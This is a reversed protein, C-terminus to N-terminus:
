CLNIVDGLLEEIEADERTTIGWERNRRFYGAELPAARWAQAIAEPAPYRGESITPKTAAFLLVDLEIPSEETTLCSWPFGALGTQRDIAAAEGDGVALRGYYPSRTVVQSWFKELEKREELDPNILLGVSGWGASIVGRGESDAKREVRWLETAECTLDSPSELESKFPVAVARGTAAGDHVCSTSFVMTYTNSRSSSCRGYRIPANVHRRLDVQLRSNRWGARLPDADWILSGAILVGARV